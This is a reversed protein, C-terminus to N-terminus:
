APVKEPEAAMRCARVEAWKGTTAVLVAQPVPVGPLRRLAEAVTAPAPEASRQRWWQRAKRGAFGDHEFCLWERFRLLGCAYTACVSARGSASTHRRYTVSDVDQWVPPEEKPTARVLEATDAQPKLKSNFAFPAGCAICEAARAHNYTGCADCLKVPAQGTGGEGRKRPLLPDNIPGLRRTNGAFDLVLCNDKGDCPRTGRGLMQVWLGPSATPRLMAILDIPPHDFGTTLVNNNVAARYRGAKFGALAADRQADTLKSHIAVAPVDYEDSLMDAVHCAHEVSTAFVLWSRRDQGQQVTEALAARTLSERDVAAALQRANFDGHQMRVGTLDFGTDTRKPVLPALYGEAVLRNFAELGTIDYCVDTFVKGDTLMGQGLRYPTASFGVVKLAPNAEALEAILRAYLTDEKDNVTHCEDVLLLDVRGLVAASRAATGITGITIAMGADKRRLGSSFVGAPATPWVRLLTRLNQEVLEKVHTLVLVRTGPYTRVAHQSFLAIVLSKGTGTPMAVVPNGTADGFYALLADVAEAQYYRPKM